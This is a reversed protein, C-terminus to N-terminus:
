QFKHVQEFSINPTDGHCKLFWKSDNTHVTGNLVSLIDNEIVNEIENDIDDNAASM